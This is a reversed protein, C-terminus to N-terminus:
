LFRKGLLITLLSVLFRVVGRHTHSYVVDSVKEFKSKLVNKGLFVMGSFVREIMVCFYGGELNSSPPYKWM